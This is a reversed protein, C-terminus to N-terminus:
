RCRSRNIEDIRLRCHSSTASSFHSIACAESIQSAAAPKRSDVALFNNISTQGEERIENIYGYITNNCVNIASCSCVPVFLHIMATWEPTLHTHFIITQIKLENSLRSPLWM